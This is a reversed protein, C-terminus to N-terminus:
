PMAEGSFPSKRWAVGGVAENERVLRVVDRLSAFVPLRHEEAVAVPLNKQLPQTSGGILPPVGFARASSFSASLGYRHAEAPADSGSM